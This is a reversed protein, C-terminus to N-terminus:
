YISIKNYLILLTKNNLSNKTIKIQKSFLNPIYEVNFLTFGFSIM